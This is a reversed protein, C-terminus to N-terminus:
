RATEKDQAEDVVPADATGDLPARVASVVESASDAAAKVLARYEYGPATHGPVPVDIEVLDAQAEYAGNKQGGFSVAIKISSM